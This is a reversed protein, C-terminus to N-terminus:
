TGTSGTAEAAVADRKSHKADGSEAVSRGPRPKEDPAILHGVNSLGALELLAPPPKRITLAAGSRQADEHWQLLLALGASNARKVGDLDLTLSAGPELAQRLRKRLDVVTQFDLEGTLRWHGAEVRQLSATM